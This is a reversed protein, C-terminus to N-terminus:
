QVSVTDEPSIWMLESASRMTAFLLSVLAKVFAMLHTTVAPICNPKSFSYRSEAEAYRGRYLNLRADKPGREPTLYKGSLLGMALPSYALLRVHHHHCCEALTSDFTRCLLNYANQISVIRPLPSKSDALRCFEMVGYATENSVGVHIIKGAEKARSLAELQEEIPVPAYSATPDYDIDGFMPVYRDPWHLQYLDIYDCGLRKLSGDIAQEINKSDLSTPGGRIWTMQGSPGTAKTAVLVRERSVQAEKLWRGLYIESKGQSEARQPVPYMEAVDFFNIGSERAFNLQERADEYSNQEGFTMTGLCLKSVNLVAASNM